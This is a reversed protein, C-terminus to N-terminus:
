PPLGPCECGSWVWWDNPSSQGRPFLHLRFLAAEAEKPYLCICALPPSLQLGTAALVEQPLFILVETGFCPSMLMCNFLM